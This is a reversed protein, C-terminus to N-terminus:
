IKHCFAECSQSSTLRQSDTARTPARACPDYRRYGDGLLSFLPELVQVDQHDSRMRRRRSPRTTPARRCASARRRYRRCWFRWRGASCAGRSADFGADAVAEVGQAIGGADIGGEDPQERGVARGDVLDVGGVARERLAAHFGPAAGREFGIRPELAAEFVQAEGLDAVAGRRAPVLQDLALAEGLQLDARHQMIEKRTCRGAPRCGRGRWHAAARRRPRSGATAASAARCSAPAGAELRQADFCRRCLSSSRRSSACPAALSPRHSKSM